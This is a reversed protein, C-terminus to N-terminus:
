INSTIHCSMINFKPRISVSKLSPFWVSFMKIVQDWLVFWKEATWVGDFTLSYQEWISLSFTFFTDFHSKLKKATNTTQALNTFMQKDHSQVNRAHKNYRNFQFHRIFNSKRGRDAPSMFKFPHNFTSKAKNEWVNNTDETKRRNKANFTWYSSISQTKQRISSYFCWHVNILKACM